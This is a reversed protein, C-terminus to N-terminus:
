PALEVITIGPNARNFDRDSHLSPYRRLLERGEATDSSFREGPVVAVARGEKVRLRLSRRIAPGLAGGEGSSGWGHIVKLVRVRSRRAADIAGLLRRRAEDVSPRAVELNVSRMM